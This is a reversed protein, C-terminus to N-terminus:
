FDLEFDDEVLKGEAVNSFNLTLPENPTQSKSHSSVSMTVARFFRHIDSANKAYFLPAELDNNFDSLISDDADAGISLALRTAKKARESNILEGFAQTYDDTPHGDSLLIIVPKYARSDIIKKDEILEKALLCAEGLPTGGSAVLDNSQKIQHAPTLPLHLAAEGGFTIVAVNIEARTRGEDSFTGIMDKMAQNLSQIKGDISMSGSTDALIIVPLVRAKSVAFKKLSM